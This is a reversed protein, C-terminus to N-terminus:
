DGITQRAESGYLRNAHKSHTSIKETRQVVAAGAGPAASLM